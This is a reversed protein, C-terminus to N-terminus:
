PVMEIQVSVPIYKDKNNEFLFNSLSGTVDYTGPLALFDDSPIWPTGNEDIMNWTETYEKSGNPHLVFSSLAPFGAKPAFWIPAGSSTVLFYCQMRDYFHFAVQEDRLNTVRYLMDVNEGQHYISKDTQMYYKIGDKLISNSNVPTNDELWHGAMLVLDGFDVKCDGNIDGAVVTECVPEGFYSKSAEATGGYVGMNVIGGNPFPEFGIPTEPDGADICPSTVDDQVWSQSKPDWRGAQSKLHYDGRVYFDDTPDDPTGNPDLYGWEAFAVACSFTSYTVIAGSGAIEDPGTCLICNRLIPKVGYTYLGDGEGSAWNGVITCNRITARCNSCYFGGGYVDLCWMGLPDCYWPAQNDAVVCNVIEPASDRCNIAGGQGFNYTLRCNVIQPRAGHSCCVAGGAAASNGIMICNSISPSSASCYIAGGALQPSNGVYDVPGYGNTITFGTLISNADEGSHFTFGRHCDAQTGQCDIVCSEPGNESRVTIAKGKFDIDRNGAGRYIGDAVIVTDADNADDIAAQINNFDAPADDDVYIVKGPATVPPCFFLIVVFFIWSKNLLPEM